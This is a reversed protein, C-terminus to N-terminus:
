SVSFTYKSSHVHLICMCYKAHFVFHVNAVNAPATFDPQFKYSTSCNSYLGMVLIVSGLCTRLFGCSGEKRRRHRVGKKRKGGEGSHLFVFLEKSRECFGLFSSLPHCDQPLFPSAGAVSNCIPRKKKTQM